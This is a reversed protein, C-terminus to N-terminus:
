EGCRWVGSRGWRGTGGAGVSVRSPSHLTHLAVGTDIQSSSTWTQRFQRATRQCRSRRGAAVGFCGRGGVWVSAGALLESFPGHFPAGVSPCRLGPMRRSRAPSCGGIFTRGTGACAPSPTRVRDM